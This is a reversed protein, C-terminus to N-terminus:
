EFFWLNNQVWSNLFRSYKLNPFDTGYKLYILNHISDNLESPKWSGQLIESIEHSLASLEAETAQITGINKSEFENKQTLQFYGKEILESLPIKSHTLLDIYTLPMVFDGPIGLLLATLTINTQLTPTRLLFPILSSGSDTTICLRSRYVLYFNALETEYQSLTLPSFIEPELGLVRTFSFQNLQTILPQYNERFVDRFDTSIASKSALYQSRYGQTRLFLTIIERDKRHGLNHLLEEGYKSEVDTFQFISSMMFFDAAGDLEFNHGMRMIFYKSKFIRNIFFVPVVLARPWFILKQRIKSNLFHNAINPQTCFIDFKFKGQSKEEVRMYKEYEYIMHGLYNTPFIGVRVVIFPSLLRQICFFPVGIILILFFFSFFSGAVETRNPNGFFFHSRFREYVNAPM